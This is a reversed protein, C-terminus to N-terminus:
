RRIMVCFRAAAKITTEGGWTWTDGSGNTQVGRLCVSTSGAAPLISEQFVCNEQDGSLPVICLGQTSSQTSTPAGNLLFGFAIGAAANMGGNLNGVVTYSSIGDATWTITSGAVCGSFNTSPANYTGTLTVCSDTFVTSAVGGDLVVKGAFTNVGSFTQTASLVANGGTTTTTGDAWKIGSAAANLRGGLTVSGGAVSFTSGGVSFANGQVTMTGGIVGQGGIILNGSDVIDANAPLALAVLIGGVRLMRM